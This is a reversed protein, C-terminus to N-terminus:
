TVKIHNKEYVNVMRSDISTTRSNPDMDNVGAWEYVIDNIHKKRDEPNLMLYLNIMTALKENGSAAVQLSNLNGFAKVKPLSRIELPINIDEEKTKNLNVKFWVDNADLTSGDKLTVKSSQKVTNSNEDMAIEKYNLDISKINNHTLSSLEGDDTIGNSNKDKWIKLKNFIEDKEDIVNDNNLDYAKLAEYGNTAKKDTYGYITNSITHNGFLENGNDIKGNGNKDLALLGDDKEIWATAEKFGNNDHDFYVTNDLRTSTIGNKNFDIVIPDYTEPLDDKPDRDDDKITVELPTITKININNSHVYVSVGVAVNVDENATTNGDWSLYTNNSYVMKSFLADYYEKPVDGYFVYREEGSDNLVKVIMWENKELSRNLEIKYGESHKGNGQESLVTKGRISIAIDNAELLTIGLDNNDKNFGKVTIKNNIILDNGEIKYWGNEGIYYGSKKDFTGGTYQKQTASDFIRGKKDSDDIIDGNNVFYDDVGVGGILLDGGGHGILIDKNAGGFLVDPKQGGSLMGSPETTIGYLSKLKESAPRMYVTGDPMTVRLFGNPTIEPLDNNNNMLDDYAKKLKDTIGFHEDVISIVISAVLGAPTTKCLMFGIKGVAESVVIGIAVSDLNKGKSLGIAAEVATGFKSAIDHPVKIKDGYKNQFYKLNFNDRVNKPLDSYEQLSKFSGTIPIGKILAKELIENYLDINKLRAEAKDLEIKAVSERSM